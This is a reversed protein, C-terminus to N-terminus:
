YWGPVVGALLVTRVPVGYLALVVTSSPMAMYPTHLVLTEPHRPMRSMLPPQSLRGLWGQTM